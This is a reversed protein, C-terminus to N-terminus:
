SHKAANGHRRVLMWAMAAAIAVGLIVVAWMTQGSALLVACVVLAALLALEGPSRIGFGSASFAGLASLAMLVVGIGAMVLNGTSAGRTFPQLFFIVGIAMGIM